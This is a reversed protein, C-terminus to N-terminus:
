CRIIAPRRRGCAPILKRMDAPDSTYLAEGDMAAVLAVHAHCIDSTRTQGCVEGVERAVPDFPVLVCHRLAKALAAQAPAGRWVQALATSPVFVDTNQLAALKLVAWVVRVNRELAILAGADFM